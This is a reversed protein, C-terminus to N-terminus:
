MKFLSFSSPFYLPWSFAARTLPSFSVDCCSNQLPLSPPDHKLPWLFLQSSLALQRSLFSFVPFFLLFTCTHTPINLVIFCSFGLLEPKEWGFLFTHFSLPFDCLCFDLPTSFPHSLHIPSFVAFVHYVHLHSQPLYCPHERDPCLCRLRTCGTHLFYFVCVWPWLPWPLVLLLFQELIPMVSTLVSSLYLVTCRVLVAVPLSCSVGMLVDQEPDCVWWVVLSWEGFWCLRWFNRM